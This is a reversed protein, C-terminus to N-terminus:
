KRVARWAPTVVVFRSANSRQRPRRRSLLPGVIATLLVYAAALTGLEPRLGAGLRQRQPRRTLM